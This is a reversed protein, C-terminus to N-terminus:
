FRDKIFIEKGDQKVGGKSKQEKKWKEKEELYIERLLLANVLGISGPMEPEEFGQYHVCLFLEWMEKSFRM